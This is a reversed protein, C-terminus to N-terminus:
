IAKRIEETTSSEEEPVDLTNKGANWTRTSNVTSTVMSIKSWRLQSEQDELERVTRFLNNAAFDKELYNVVKEMNERKLKQVVLKVDKNLKRYKAQYVTSSPHNLLEIRASKRKEWRPKSAWEMLINQKETDRWKWCNNQKNSEEFTTWHRYWAWSSPEFAGGIKIKFSRAM